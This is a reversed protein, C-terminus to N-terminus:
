YQFHRTNSAEGCIAHLWIASYYYRRRYAPHLCVILLMSYWSANKPGPGNRVRMDNESSWVELKKRWDGAYHVGCCSLWVRASDLSSYNADRPAAMAADHLDLM